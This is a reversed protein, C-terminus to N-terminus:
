HVHLKHLVYNLGVFVWSLPESLGGSNKVVYFEFKLPFFLKIEEYKKGPYFDIM